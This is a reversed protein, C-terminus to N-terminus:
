GVCCVDTGAEHSVFKMKVACFLNANNESFLLTHQAAYVAYLCPHANHLMYLVFVPTHTTCCICCMFLPTRQADYVACLCPHANHLIYLVYVPIHTTCCICCMFLPTRQAAYVACLCPHANHLM